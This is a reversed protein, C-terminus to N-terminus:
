RAKGRYRKQACIRRARNVQLNGACRLFRSGCPRRAQRSSFPLRKGGSGPHVCLHRQEHTRQFFRLKSRFDPHASPNDPRRVASIEIGLFLPRRANEAAPKRGGRGSRHRGSCYRSHDMAQFSIGAARFRCQLGMRAAQVRRSEPAARDLSLAKAPELTDKRWWEIDFLHNMQEFSALALLPLSDDAGIEQVTHFFDNADLAAVVSQADPREVILELRRKAPLRMLERALQAPKLNRLRRERLEVIDAPM